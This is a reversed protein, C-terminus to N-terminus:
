SLLHHVLTCSLRLFALNKYHVEESASIAEKTWGHTVPVISTLHKVFASPYIRIKARFHRWSVCKRKSTSNISGLKWATTWSTSVTNVQDFWRKWTYNCEREDSTATQDGTWDISSCIRVFRKKEPRSSTINLIESLNQPNLNTGVLYKIRREVHKRTNYLGSRIWV